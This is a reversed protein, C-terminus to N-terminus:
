FLFRVYYGGGSDPLGLFNLDPMSFYGEVVTSSQGAALLLVSDFGAAVLSPQKCYNVAAINGGGVIYAPPPTGFASARLGVNGIPIRQTFVATNLNLCPNVAAGDCDTQQVKQIRSFLLVARGNATLNFDRSLMGAIAQTGPLSFDAGLAYMHAVDRTLQTAQLTRGLRIGVAATGLLLPFAFSLALALEIM